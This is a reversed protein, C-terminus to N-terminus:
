NNILLNEIKHIIQKHKENFKKRVPQTLYIYDMEVSNKDFTMLMENKNYSSPDIELIRNQTFSATKAEITLKRFEEIDVKILEYLEKFLENCAEIKEKKRPSIAKARHRLADYMGLNVVSFLNNLHTEPLEFTSEIAIDVLKDVVDSTYKKTFKM